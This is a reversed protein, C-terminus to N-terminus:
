PELLFLIVMADPNLCINFSPPTFDSHRPFPMLTIFIAGSDARLNIAYSCTLATKQHISFRGSFLVAMIKYQIIYAIQENRM